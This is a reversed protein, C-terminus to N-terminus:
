RYLHSPAGDVVLDLRHHWLQQAFRNVYRWGGTTVLFTPGDDLVNTIMRLLQARERGGNTSMGFRGDISWCDSEATSPSTSCAHWPGFHAQFARTRLLALLM